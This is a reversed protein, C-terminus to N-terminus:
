RSSHSELQVRALRRASVCQPDIAAMFLSPQEGQASLDLASTLIESGDPQKYHFGTSAGDGFETVAAVKLCTGLFAKVNKMDKQLKTVQKKLAAFQAPTVSQQGGPASAAYLGIALGATAILVLFRKM